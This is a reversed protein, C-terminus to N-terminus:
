PVCPVTVGVHFIDELETPRHPTEDPASITSRIAPELEAKEDLLRVRALVDATVMETPIAAAREFQDIQFYARTKTM